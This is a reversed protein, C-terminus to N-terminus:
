QILRSITTAKFQCGRVTTMGSLNLTAAIESLGHGANHLKVALTRAQHNDHRAKSQRAATGKKRAEQTLNQPNGNIKQRGERKRKADLAAKTRISILEREREAVAFLLTLTFRDTQPCDCAMLRGELRDFIELADRVNRSLRDCKAVIITHGGANAEKIAKALGTRGNTSSASAIDTFEGILNDGAFHEVIAKQSELGLGSKGQGATSVRYYAIYGM